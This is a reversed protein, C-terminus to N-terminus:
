RSGDQLDDQARRPARSATKPSFTGDSVERFAKDLDLPPPLPPTFGEGFPFLPLHFFFRGLDGVGKATELLMWAKLAPAVAALVPSALAAVARNGNAANRATPPLPRRGRSLVAAPAAARLGCAVVVVVVVVRHRRFVVLVLVVVVVVAPKRM